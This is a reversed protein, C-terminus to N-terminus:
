ITCRRNANGDIRFCLRAIQPMTSVDEREARTFAAHQLTDTVGLGGDVERTERTERWGADDTFDQVVISRGRLTWLELLEGGLMLEGEHRHRLQDRMPQLVLPEHMADGFGAKGSLMALPFDDPIAVVHVFVLMDREDVAFHAIAFVDHGAHVRLAERAVYEMRQAAVTSPLEVLRHAHDGSVSATHDHIEVLFPAADSEQVLQLRVLKLVAAGVRDLGVLA